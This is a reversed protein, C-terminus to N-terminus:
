RPPREMQSQVSERLALLQRALARRSPADPAHSDDLSLNLAYHGEALVLPTALALVGPQWSAQCWGHAAVHACAEDMAARLAPWDRASHRQRLARLLQERAPEDLSALHAHGLSTLAIPIRQGSVVQRLAARRHHRLSELYVMDLGDPAALGVNLGQQLALAQMHPRAVQLLRSGTRMAHAMSLVSPALSYARTQPDVQLLGEQVLTQALRSVTAKSLGTQAVLEANSVSTWGPRFARLILLGRALSRNLPTGGARRRPADPTM